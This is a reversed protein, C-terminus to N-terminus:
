WLPVSDARYLSFAWGIVVFSPLYIERMMSEVQNFKPSIRGFHKKLAIKEYINFISEGTLCEIQWIKPITPGTSTFCFSILWSSVLSVLTNQGQGKVKFQWPWITDWSHSAQNDHFSPYPLRYSARIHFGLFIIWCSVASVPAGQVKFKLPSITDQSHSAWNDYFSSSLIRYSARIYFCLLYTVQLCLISNPVLTVKIDANVDVWRTSPSKHM